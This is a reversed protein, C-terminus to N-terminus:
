CRSVDESSVQLSGEQGGRTSRRADARHKSRSSLDLHVSSKQNQSEHLTHKLRDRVMIEKRLTNRLSTLAGVAKLEPHKNLSAGLLRLASTAAGGGGGGGGGGGTREPFKFKKAHDYSGSGRWSARM